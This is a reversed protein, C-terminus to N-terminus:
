RFGSAGSEGSRSKGGYSHIRAAATEPKPGGARQLGLRRSASGCQGGDPVGSLMTTHPGQTAVFKGRTGVSTELAPREARQLFAWDLHEALERAIVAVDDADAHRIKTINEDIVRIQDLFDEDRVRAFVELASDQTRVPMDKTLPQEGAFAIKPQPLPTQRLRRKVTRADCRIRRDHHLVRLTQQFVPPVSFFAVHM